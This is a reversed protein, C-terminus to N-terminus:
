ELGDPWATVGGEVFSVEAFGAAQLLRQAEYGKMGSRCIVVIEKGKPLSDLSDRLSDLPLPLSGGIVGERREEPTRVDLLIFDEGSALKEGLRLPSIGRAQGALKNDLIHAAIILNDMAPAFPPAYALDLRSLQRADAGFTIAAAAADIRKDVAGGGVGQLGLIRGTEIEAVLKLTLPTAGPFFHPRDPATVLATEVRFGEAVAEDETLGTKGANCEFVRVITTGLTGPFLAAGGAANIGAVRAQKNAASGRPIHVPRGTVLHTAEACDGCAFINPDSTEMRENVAIAGSEGIGIGAEEALTVNPIVGPALVVLDAPVEGRNTIAREVRVTGDFGAVRCSTLVTVGNEKLHRELLRAMEGDLIGDLLHHHQEVLTVRMGKLHLAEAIEVGALGGGVICAAKGPVAKDKLMVGDEITKVALINPCGLNSLSTLAPSSGTALILRDYPLTLPREENRDFLSVTKAGRDIGVAEAGIVAHVGKVRGFYSADRITGDPTSVLEKLSPITDSVYYPIACASSSIISRRDVLTVEAAPNFRKAKCAAKAGAANGGIVVIRFSM